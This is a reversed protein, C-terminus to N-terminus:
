GRHKEKQGENKGENKGWKWKTNWGGERKSLMM